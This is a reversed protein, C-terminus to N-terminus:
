LYTLVIPSRSLEIFGSIRSSLKSNPSSMKQGLQPHALLFDWQPSSNQPTPAALHVLKWPASLM